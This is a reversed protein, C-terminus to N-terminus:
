KDNVTFYLDGNENSVQGVFLAKDGIMFPVEKNFKMSIVDGCNLSYIEGLTLERQMLIANAKVEVSLLSAEISKRSFNSPLFGETLSEVLEHNLITSFQFSTDNSKLTFNLVVAQLPLKKTTVIRCDSLTDLKATEKVVIKALKNFFRIATNDIGTDAEPPENIYDGTLRILSEEAISLSLIGINPTDISTYIFGEQKSLSQLLEAEIETEIHKNFMTTFTDNFHSQMEVAIQNIRPVLRRQALGLSEMPIIQYNKM